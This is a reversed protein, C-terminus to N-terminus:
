LREAAFPALLSTGAGFPRSRTVVLRRAARAWDLPWTLLLDGFSSSHRIPRTECSEGGGGRGPKRKRDWGDLYHALELGMCIPNRGKQAPKTLHMPSGCCRPQGSAMVEAPTFRRSQESCNIRALLHLRLGLACVDPDSETAPPRLFFCFFGESRLLAKTRLM